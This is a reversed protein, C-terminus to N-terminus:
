SSDQRTALPLIQTIAVLAQKGCKACCGPQFSNDSKPHVVDPLLGLIIQRLNKLRSKRDKGAMFGYHRIRVFRPVPIHMLFRRMFETASITCHKTKCQDAYDKWTFTVQNNKHSVLRSNSLAVKRTYRSLYKLVHLPSAFPPEAHVVWSLRVSEQVLVEFNKSYQLKGQNFAARLEKIFIGRFVEALVKQPFLYRRRKSTAVWSGDPKIAGGPVVCHIHPHFDLLQGWTHLIAFFGLQAELKNQAVTMLTKAVSKFLIAFCVKQNHLILENLVHPTTFVVHFYHTPLLESERELLWKAEKSGECQPCGRHRCSNYHTEEHGCEKCKYVHGGLYPSRCHMLSALARKQYGPIKTGYKSLFEKSHARFIEAVSLRTSM